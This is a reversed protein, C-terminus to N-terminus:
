CPTVIPVIKWILKQLYSSGRWSNPNAVLTVHDGAKWESVMFPGTGFAARNFPVKAIDLGPRDFIHRPIIATLGVNVLFPANAAKLHCTFTFADPTSAHDIQEWGTISPVNNKKDLIAHYAYAVDASTFPQGDAWKVGHRLHFTWSRGDPTHSVSTALEPQLRGQQDVYFLADFITIDLNNGGTFWPNLTDPQNPSGYILTTNAAAAATHQRSGVGFGGGALVIAALLAASCTSRVRTM